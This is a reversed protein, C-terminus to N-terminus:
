WVWSPAIDIVLVLERFRHDVLILPGLNIRLPGRSRHRGAVGLAYGWEDHLDVGAHGTPDKDLACPGVTLELQWEYSPFFDIVPALFLAGLVREDAFLPSPGAAFGARLGVSHVADGPLELGFRLAAGWVGILEFGLEVSEGREGASLLEPWPARGLLPSSAQVVGSLVLASCLSSLSPM